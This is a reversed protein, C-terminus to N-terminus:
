ISTLYTSHSKIAPWPEPERPISSKRTCPPVCACAPYMQLDDSSVPRSTVKTEQKTSAKGSLSGLEPWNGISWLWKRTSMTQNDVRHRMAVTHKSSQGAKQLSRLLKHTASSPCTTTNVDETEAFILICFMAPLWPWAPDRKRGHLSGSRRWCVNKRQGYSRHVNWLSVRYGRRRPGLRSEWPQGSM